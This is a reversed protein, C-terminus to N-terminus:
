QTKIQVTRTQNDRWLEVTVVDGRNVRDLAAYLDGTTKIKRGNIGVIVDGFQIGRRTAIMPQVGALHAPGGEVVERVPVGPVQQAAPLRLDKTDIIYVGLRARQYTGTQIIQPVVRNVTDVPIAFGIGASSGSQSYIATNVGILRGASDLLPGGSNGPNIATDTQIVDQITNGAAGRIQRALASIVGTTLTHDLGFPNGIAFVSQGVKLDASTGVPIPRLKMGLPVNIRLVALDNEESQGILTAAHESTDSFVVTLTSADKVVHYNTVVIGAEDWIFGSGTGQFEETIRRTFPNIRQASTNINVVSPGANEFIGITTTEAEALPGRPTIPRPTGVVRSFFVPWLYMVAVILLLISLISLLWRTRRLAAIERM